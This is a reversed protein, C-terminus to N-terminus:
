QIQRIIAEVSYTVTTFTGTTAITIATSAKARIHLPIGEYPVAGAANAIATLATGALNIFPLTLTRATNGEDTYAVTVTFSHITATTILVNASIEFSGDTAPLTYTAVSAVAATQATARGFKRVSAVFSNNGAADLAQLIGSTSYLSNGNALTGVPATGNFIDLHNTGETTARVATGAIKINGANDIILRTVNATGFRLSPNLGTASADPRVNFFGSGRGFASGSYGFNMAPGNVGDTGMAAFTDTTETGYIHFLNTPATTNIGVRGTSTDVYLDDTNVAFDGTTSLAVNLNQGALPTINIVGSTSSFTNDDLKLNDVQLANLTGVSTLSSTLVNSALTAGTLTGAPATGTINIGATGTLNTVTGSSPTGLAGGNTIFSGATGINVALATAVGTGLGTISGVAPTITVNSVATILGKGNVTLQPSQTASGFSGVNGNVTALTSVNSGAIISIDGTIAARSAVVAGTTPSITLTGDANSVSDVGGAASFDIDVWKNVDDNTATISGVLNIDTYRTLYDVDNIAIKRNMSGGRGADWFKNLSKELEKFDEKIKKLEEGNDLSTLMEKVKNESEALLQVVDKTLLGAEEKSIEQFDKTLEELREQFHSVLKKDRASLDVKLIEFASILVNFTGKIKKGISINPVKKSAKLPRLILEEKFPSLKNTLKRLVRKIRQNKTKM